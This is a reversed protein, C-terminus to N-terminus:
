FNINLNFGFTRTAPINYNDLSQFRGSTAMALEPDFPAKKYLFFLNQGIISLTASEVPMNLSAMDFTYSLALQSMRINTRDYVHAEKIGNREGVTRHWLYPDVQTVPVGDQVANVEVYGRDRDDATRKSVGYGDNMAETQSVAVGGFKGNILFSLAVNGFAFNNNWGMSFDPHLNGILETTPTRLPTGNGPDLEIRGQEDRLFKYVYVDGISGGAVFKSEYGEEIGLSIPQALDDHLKVVENKNIAYNLGSSWIIRNNRVPTVNLTLEVGSNVIEGANVYYSTYGSGSPAPLTIFQDKSNINYYTFDMGVRGQFMRWDLGVEFSELMEPKLNTFPIVTNREVGGGGSIGHQPFIRNFPVEHAVTAHSARVKAFDIFSPLEVIENIIATLGIMPYFYSENNTGYLTSAWDNRGSLELFLMERFGITANAFLGQKLMRGSFSSNVTIQDPLNRFNFINPYILGATGTGVNVGQGYHTKQSSAGAVTNLSFPGVNDTYTLIADTYMLEDTYRSYDWAGNDHVETVRSGAFNHRERLKLAFDYNGRVQFGIKENIDYALSINGIFRKTDDMLPRKHLYWYPNEAGDTTHWNPWPMNRDQNFGEYNVYQNFDLNRPFQYLGPLFNRYGAPARNHTSEATVMINSSVTLKDDLLATSQRFSLNNRQYKNTPVIGTATTNAFSFFATTRSTGGSINVSNQLQHGTQFFDRVYSDDYNGPTYSWSELTGAEAGYKYQLEPILMANSINLGSNISVKVDGEKGKKTTILVVGNAGQSGYLAAANSGRLISISEIDDPNIQSMGDGGDHGGWMNPQGTRRNTMPIGDIVFLPTSAGGLSNVGRLVVQTSGGPGSSSQRIDIGAAQGSLSNLFNMERSRVLNDASVTQMAYTLTREQRRIGLATVVVEDMSILDSMMTVNITTRGGVLVEETRMGIFTFVLTADEPINSLSYYGDANTVTGLTTGKVQVTVGPLSEKTDDTVYGSLRIQQQKSYDSKSLLVVFDERIEEFIMDAQDLANELISKIPEDIYSVSVFSNLEKLNDNYLISIGGQREIESVLDRVTVNQMEVSIKANQSFTNTSYVNLVSVMILLLSIKMTLLIKKANGPLLICPKTKTKM